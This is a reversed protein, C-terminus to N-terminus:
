RGAHVGAEAADAAPGSVRVERRGSRIGLLRPARARIKEALILTALEGEASAWDGRPGRRSSPM